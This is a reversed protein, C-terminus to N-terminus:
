QETAPMMSLLEEIEKVKTADSETAKALAMSLLLRGERTKGSAVAAMGMDALDSFSTGAAMPNVVSELTAYAKDFRKLRAYTAYLNRVVMVREAPMARALAEENLTLAAEYREEKFAALGALAYGMYREPFVDMLRAAHAMAEQTKGQALLIKAAVTNAVLGDPYVDLVRRCEAFIKERKGAEMAEYDEIVCTAPDLERLRYRAVLDPYAKADAYLTLVDDFFVPEFDGVGDMRALFDKDRVSTLIFGPAYQDLARKFVQKDTFMNLSMFLDFSPFLMTQMDMFIKYKPYLRWELYGGPNSVNLVRGGPGQRLLFECTGVPLRGIDLPYRPQHGMYESVSWLTAVVMVLAAAAAGKWPLPRPRREAVLRLVDAVIPLCLLLFEYTFRRSQPLLFLGGAFLVLRSLRLRRGWALALVSVAVLLVLGNAATDLWNGGPYLSLSFFAGFSQPNLESIVREHFLPPAFPKPLLGVGAPTVLVAYLSLILPWRLRRLNEPVPRRLLKPLFYETLYAGCTLLLIPYEVGHVNTWVLAALPLWWGYGPRDNVVYHFLVILLYTFIHPRLNLDRPLIAMAYACTMALALLFVGNDNDSERGRLCMWVLVVTTLYFLSRVMALAAYGGTQHLFAVMVQFLWYYDVWGSAVSLYSFFPEVPLVHHTLIYTGGLLHYWLDYDLAIIPFRVVLLALGGLAPCLVAFRWSSMAKLKGIM